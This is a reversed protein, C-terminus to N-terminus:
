GKALGILVVVFLVVLALPILVGQWDKPADKSAEMQAKMRPWMWVVLGVAMLGVIIQEWQEM